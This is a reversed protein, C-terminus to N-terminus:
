TNCDERANQSIEQFHVALKQKSEQRVLAPDFAMIVVSDITCKGKGNVRAVMGRSEFKLFGTRGSVHAKTDTELTLKDGPLVVGGFDAGVIRRAIYVKGKSDGALDIDVAAFNAVLTGLLQFAMEVIEVGRMVLLGPMPEHGECNEVPVTFEGIVKGGTITVQDLLLM